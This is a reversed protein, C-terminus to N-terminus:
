LLRARPTAKDPHPQPLGTAHRCVGGVEAQSLSAGGVEAICLVRVTSMYIVIFLLIRYCVPRFQQPGSSSLSM